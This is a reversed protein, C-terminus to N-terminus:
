RKRILSLSFTGSSPATSFYIGGKFYRLYNLIPFDDPTIIIEGTTIHPLPIVITEGNVNKLYQSSNKFTQSFLKLSADVDLKNSLLMCCSTWDSIDITNEGYFLMTDTDRKSVADFVTIVEVENRRSIYASGDESVALPKAYEDSNEDIYRGGVKLFSM